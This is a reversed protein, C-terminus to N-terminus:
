SQEPESADPYMVPLADNQIMAYLDVPVTM